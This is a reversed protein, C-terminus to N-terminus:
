KVIVFAVQYFGSFRGVVYGNGADVIQQDEYYGDGDVDGLILVKDGEFAGISFAVDSYGQSAIETETIANPTYKFATVLRGEVGISEMTSAVNVRANTYQESTLEKVAGGTSKITAAVSVVKSAVTVSQKSSEVSITTDETTPSNAAFVSVSGMTMVLATALAVIVKKKM